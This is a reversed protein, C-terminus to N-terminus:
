PHKRLRPFATVPQGFENFKVVVKRTRGYFGSGKYYGEGVDRLMDIVIEERGTQGSARYSRIAKNIAEEMDTYKMFRTSNTKYSRVGEPTIGETARRYLDRLKVMPSHRTLFHGNRISGQLTTLSQQAALEPDITRAVRGATEPVDCKNALKVTDVTNEVGDLVEDAYKLNKVAGIVPALSVINFAMMGAHSWTWEWNYIGYAIDGIDKYADLGTFGLAVSGTVGLANPAYDDALANSTDGVFTM